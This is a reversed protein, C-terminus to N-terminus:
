SSLAVDFARNDYKSSNDLLFQLRSAPTSPNEPNKSPVHGNSRMVVGADVDNYTGLFRTLHSRNVRRFSPLNLDM